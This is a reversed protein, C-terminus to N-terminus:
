SAIPPPRPARGSIRALQHRLGPTHPHPGAFGTGALAVSPAAGGIPDSGAREAAPLETARSWLSTIAEGLPAAAAFAAPRCDPGVAPYAVGCARGIGAQQGHAVVTSQVGGLPAILGLILTALVVGISGRSRRHLIM